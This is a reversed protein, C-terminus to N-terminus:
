AHLVLQPMLLVLRLCGTGATMALAQVDHVAFLIQILPLGPSGRCVSPGTIIGFARVKRSKRKHLTAKHLELTCSLSNAGRTQQEM